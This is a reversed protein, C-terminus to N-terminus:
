SREQGVKPRCECGLKGEAAARRHAAILIRAAQGRRSALRELPCGTAPILREREDDALHHFGTRTKM